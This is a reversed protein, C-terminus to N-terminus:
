CRIRTAPTSSGCSHSLAEMFPRQHTKRSNITAASVKICRRAKGACSGKPIARALTEGGRKAAAIVFPLPCRRLSGILPSAQLHTVGLVTVSNDFRIVSSDAIARDTREYVEAFFPLALRNPRTSSCL